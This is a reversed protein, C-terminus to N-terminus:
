INIALFATGNGVHGGMKQRRDAILWNKQNNRPKGNGLLSRLVIKQYIIYSFYLSM